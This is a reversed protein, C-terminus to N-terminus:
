RRRKPLPKANSDGALNPPEYSVETDTTATWQPMMPLTEEPKPEKKKLPKPKPLAEFRVTGDYIVKVVTEGKELGEFVGWGNGRDVMNIARIMKAALDNHKAFGNTDM